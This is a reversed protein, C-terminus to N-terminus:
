FQCPYKLNNVMKIIKKAETKPIKNIALGDHILLYDGIKINKLLHLDARHQHDGSKVIASQGKITIVKSPIALCM